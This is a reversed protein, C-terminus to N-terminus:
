RQRRYQPDDRKFDADKAFIIMKEKKGGGARASARAFIPNTLFRKKVTLHQSSGRRRPQKTQRYYSTAGADM